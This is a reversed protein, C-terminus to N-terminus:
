AGGAINEEALWLWRFGKDGSHSQPTSRAGRASFESNTIIPLFQLIITNSFTIPISSWGPEPKARHSTPSEARSGRMHVISPGDVRREHLGHLILYAYAVAIGM